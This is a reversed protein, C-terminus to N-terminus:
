MLGPERRLRWLLDYLRAFREPDSHWVVSDALEVFSRPVTGAGGTAPPPSAPATAFLYPGAEGHSWLVEEPALGSALCARAADRWAKATGIAPLRVNHMLVAFAARAGARL